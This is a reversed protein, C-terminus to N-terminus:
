LILKLYIVYHNFNKISYLENLTIIFYQSYEKDQAIYGQLKNNQVYYNTSKLEKGGDQVRGRGEGWQYGNTQERCGCVQKQKTMTM